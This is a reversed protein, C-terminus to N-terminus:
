TVNGHCSILLRPSVVQDAICLPAGDILNIVRDISYAAWFTRRLEEIEVWSLSSHLNNHPADVEHLRLLCVLRYCRGASLWGRQFDCQTMEYIILLIWAQVHAVPSSPAMQDLDWGGLISRTQEYLDKQIAKFQSGFSAALTWMAFRLGLLPSAVDQSSEVRAFYRRKNLMPVMHHVRDFFLHDLDVKTLDPIQFLPANSGSSVADWSSSAASWGNISGHRPISVPSLQPQFLPLEPLFSYDTSPSTLNGGVTWADSVNTSVTSAFQQLSRLASDDTPSCPQQVHFEQDSLTELYNFGTQLRSVTSRITPHDVVLNQSQDPYQGITEGQISSENAQSVTPGENFCQEAGFYDMPCDDSNGEVSKPSFHMIGPTVGERPGNQQELMSELAQLRCQMEKMQGKKPGRPRQTSRYVCAIGLDKCGSCPQRRDCRLKRNRCDKCALGPQQRQTAPDKTTATTEPM